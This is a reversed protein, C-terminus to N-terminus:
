LFVHFCIIIIYPSVTFMNTLIKMNIEFFTSGAIKHEPYPTRTVSLQTCRSSAWEKSSGSRTSHVVQQKKKHKKNCYQQKNSFLKWKFLLHNSIIQQQQNEWQILLYSWFQLGFRQFILCFTKMHKRRKKLFTICYFYCM